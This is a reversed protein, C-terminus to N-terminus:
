KWDARRVHGFAGFQPGDAPLRPPEKKPPNKGAKEDEIKKALEGIVNTEEKDAKNAKTNDSIAFLVRLMVNWGSTFSQLYVAYTAIQSSIDMVNNNFRKQPADRFAVADQLDSQSGALGAASSGLYEASRVDRLVGRTDYKAFANTLEGSYKALDRQSELLREGNAVTRDIWAGMAKFAAILGVAGASLNTFMKWDFGDGGAPALGGGSSGSGGGGGSGGLGGLFNGVTGALGGNSASDTAFPSDFVDGAVKGAKGAKGGYKLVKALDGVYPVIGAASIGANVLHTGANQPDTFARVLSIGANVGDAIGTPDAVGIADLGTQLLNVAGGGVDATDGAIPPAATADHAANQRAAFGLDIPPAAVGDSASELLKRLPASSVPSSSGPLLVDWGAAQSDKGGLMDAFKGSQAAHWADRLRPDHKVQSYPLAKLRAQSGEADNPDLDIPKGNALRLPTFPNGSRVLGPLEWLRKQYEGSGMAFSKASQWINWNKNGLNIVGGTDRKEKAQSERIDGLREVENSLWAFEEETLDSGAAKAVQLLDSNNRGDKVSGSKYLLYLRMLELDNM